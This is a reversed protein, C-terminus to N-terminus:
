PSIPASNVTGAREGAAYKRFAWLAWLTVALIEAAVSVAAQPAPRWGREVFGFLGVTRSLAFAVLSGASMAAAAWRLWAPGGIALLVAVALFVSAQLLFAPGVAPIYRYGHVFLYAHSVGSVAVSVAIGLRFASDIFKM